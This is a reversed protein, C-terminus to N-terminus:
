VSEVCHKLYIVAQKVTEINGCNKMEISLYNNYHLEKLIKILYRHLNRRQIVELYPESIHIHNVVSLIDKVICINEKNYIVTGLDFNIKLGSSSVKNVLKVAEETTNIVKTGYIEPNAEIAICTNHKAAFKGIESFFDIAIPLYEEEPLDTDRNKPNGFVLNKCKIAEAFLIAKKTYEILNYRQEKSEFIRETRGFWISQMSSIELGYKIRLTNAFSDAEDLKEYPEDFLRTPAIELGSYNNKSLFSYFNRM